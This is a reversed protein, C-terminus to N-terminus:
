ADQVSRYRKGQPQIDIKLRDLALDDPRSGSYGIRRAIGCMQGPTDSCSCPIRALSHKVTARLCPLLSLYIHHQTKEQETMEPSREFHELFFRERNAVLMLFM